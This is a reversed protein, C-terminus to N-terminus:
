GLARGCGKALGSAEARGLTGQGPPGGRRLGEGDALRRERIRNRSAPAPSCARGAGPCAAGRAEAEAMAGLERVHAKAKGIWRYLTARHCGAAKAFGAIGDWPEEGLMARCLRHALEQPFALILSCAMRVARVGPGCDAGDMSAIDAPDAAGPDAIAEIPLWPGPHREAAEDDHCMRKDEMARITAPIAASQLRFLLHLVKIELINCKSRRARTQGTPM